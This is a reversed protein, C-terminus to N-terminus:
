FPNSEATRSSVSISKMGSSPKDDATNQQTHIERRICVEGRRANPLLASPLGLGELLESVASSATASLQFTGEVVADHVCAQKSDHPMSEWVVSEFQEDM